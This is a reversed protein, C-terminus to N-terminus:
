SLEVTVFCPCGLQESFYDEIAHPDQLAYQDLLCIRVENVTVRGESYACDVSVRCGSPPIAFQNEMTTIVHNRLQDRSIGTLTDGFVAEYGERPPDPLLEEVRAALDGELGDRLLRLGETLPTLLTLLLFLGAVMRIHSAIRDGEGKPALREVTAALLAAALISLVYARM